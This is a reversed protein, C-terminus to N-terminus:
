SISRLSTILADGNWEEFEDGKYIIMSSNSNLPGLIQYGKYIGKEM